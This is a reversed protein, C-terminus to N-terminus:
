VFSARAVTSLSPPRHCQEAFMTDALAASLPIGDSSTPGIEIGQARHWGLIPPDDGSVCIASPIECSNKLGCRVWLKIHRTHLARVSVLSVSATAPFDFHEELAIKGSLSASPLATESKASFSLVGAAIAASSGIHLFGRRTIRAKRNATM